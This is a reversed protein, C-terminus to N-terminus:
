GPRSPNRWPPPHHRRRWWRGVPYGVMKAVDGTVRILPVYLLTAVRDGLPLGPWWGGLRRYPRYLHAAAGALPLLWLPPLWWGAVLAVAAGLYAAYRALHRRLWLNAKGDGRAYRFYQRFFAMLTPRPRFYVVAQPRWRFPYGAEKLRLDFVIDECYDLWEPYGGIRRWAEKPFAVSRSSPLFAAPDIDEVTPLVTAGMARQFNTGPAPLFFGGVVLPLSASEFPLLLEELWRPHLRVGADTVAIVEGEARQIALNRGQSINAGPQIYVKLPLRDQYSEVIAVTADSSGGDVVVVEHPPRTQALISDMLSAISAAENLLTVILSVRVM